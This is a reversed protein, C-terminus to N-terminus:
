GSLIMLGLMEEVQAHSIKQSVAQVRLPFEHAALELRLANVIKRGTADVQGEPQGTADPFSM